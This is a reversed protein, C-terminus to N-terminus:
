KALRRVKAWRYNLAARLKQERKARIIFVKRYLRLRPLEYSESPLIELVSGMGRILGVFADNSARREKQLFDVLKEVNGDEASFAVWNDLSKRKAEDLFPM